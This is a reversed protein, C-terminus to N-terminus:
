TGGKGSARPVAINRIVIVTVTVRVGDPKVAVHFVPHRLRDEPAVAKLKSYAEALALRSATRVDYRRAVPNVENYVVRLWRGPLPIGQWTLPVEVRHSTFHRFPVPQFGSVLVARNDVVLWERRYNRGTPESIEVQLPQFVSFSETVAGLVDAEAVTRLTPPQAGHAPPPTVSGVVLLQGRKVRDGPSVLAEGTYVRVSVIEADANSVLQHALTPAGRKVFPHVRILALSGRITVGAWTYAPLQTLIAQEVRKIELEDRLVGARLGGAAAAAVIADAEAPPVGVVQVIWIRPTVFGLVLAATLVGLWLGPRSLIRRRWGVLGRRREVRVRERHGRVAHRIRTFDAAPVTFRVGDPTREVGSLRVGAGVLRTVLDAATATAIRVTLWGWWSGRRRIM